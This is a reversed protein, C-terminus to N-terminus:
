ANHHMKSANLIYIKQHKMENSKLSWLIKAIAFKVKYKKVEQLSILRSIITGIIDESSNKLLTEQWEHNTVIVLKM